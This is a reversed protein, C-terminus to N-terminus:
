LKSREYYICHHMKGRYEIEETRQMLQMGVKEMVRISSKNEAFAGAIVRNYGKNFLDVIAANVAETGYGNNQEAPMVVWGLEIQKNNIEVDNIIGILRDKLYIGRIYRKPDYSLRIIRDALQIASAEDLDPTMYTANVADNRLIFSLSRADEPLIPRISLRSTVCIGILKDLKALMVYDCPGNESPLDTLVFGIKKYLNLAKHNSKAVDLIVTKGLHSHAYHSLATLMLSSGLGKRRYASGVNLNVIYIGGGSKQTAAQVTIFGAIQNADLWAYTDMSEICEWIMEKSFPELGCTAELNVLQNFYDTTISSKDLKIWQM